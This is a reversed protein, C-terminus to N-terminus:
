RGSRMRPHRRLAMGLGTLLLAGLMTAALDAGTVPLTKASTQAGTTTPGSTTDSTTAAPTTTTAAATIAALVVVTGHMFPHISCIYAYTGAKSFTHSASHGKPLVGTDFSHDRATASHGTPGANAWTITEGAHITIASPGFKYDSVTVTPDAAERARARAVPGSTRPPGAVGWRIERPLPAIAVATAILTLPLRRLPLM